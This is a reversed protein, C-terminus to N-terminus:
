FLYSSYYVPEIIDRAQAELCGQLTCDYNRGAGYDYGETDCIFRNVAIGESDVRICIMRLEHLNMQLRRPWRM